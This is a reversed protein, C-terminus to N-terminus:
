RRVAGLVDISFKIGAEVRFEKDFTRANDINGNDGWAYMGSAFIRLDGLNHKLPHFEVGGSGINLSTGESVLKDEGVGANHDRTYKAFVRWDRSPKVSLESMVSYDKSFQINDIDTRHMVDVSLCVEPCFNFRNGIVVYNMWKKQTGEGEKYQIMSASWLADYFGHRGTWLINGGYTHNDSTYRFSSNNVQLRINDRRGIDFGVSVGLQYPAFQSWIESNYYLDIPLTNYEFGGLAVLQKGMSLHLWKRAHWTVDLVETADFFPVSGIQDLRQRYDYTVNDAINGNMRLYLYQGKFGTNTNSTMGDWGQYEYAVRGDISMQRVVNKRADQASASTALLLLASLVLNYRTM